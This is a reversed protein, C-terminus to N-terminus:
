PTDDHHKYQESISRPQTQKQEFKGLSSVSEGFEVLYIIM